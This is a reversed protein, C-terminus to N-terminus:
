FGAGAFEDRPWRGHKHSGQFHADTMQITIFIEEDELRQILMDRLLRPQIRERSFGTPDYIQWLIHQSCIALDTGVLESQFEDIRMPRAKIRGEELRYDELQKRFKRLLPNVQRSDLNKGRVEFCVQMFLEFSKNLTITEEGGIRAVTRIDPQPPDDPLPTVTFVKQIKNKM